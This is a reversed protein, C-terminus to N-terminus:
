AVSESVLRLHQFAHIGDRGGEYGYGSDRMGGLPADPLSPAMQNVGLNTVQLRALARARVGMSDTFLYGAFCYGTANARDIGDELETFSILPALPGFPEERMIEAEAPVDALVTPAWFYGGRALRQGGCLLRAGGTVADGVLRELADLRQPSIVPGMQAGDEDPAAVRLSSAAATFREAFEDYKRAHILFRSPAVCSQGASGFKAGLTADVALEVDGDECVIM